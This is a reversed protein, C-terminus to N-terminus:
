APHKKAWSASMSMLQEKSKADRFQKKWERGENLCKNLHAMAGKAYFELFLAPSFELTVPKTHEKNTWGQWEITTSSKQTLALNAMNAYNAFNRQDDDKFSFHLNQGNVVYSFGATIAKGTYENLETLIESQLEEFTLLLAPVSYGNSKLVHKLNDITGVEEPHIDAGPTVFKEATVSYVRGDNLKYYGWTPLQESQPQPGYGAALFHQKWEERTKAPQIMSVAQAIFDALTPKDDGDPLKAYAGEAQVKAAAVEAEYKQQDQNFYHDVCIELQEATRPMDIAPNYQSM